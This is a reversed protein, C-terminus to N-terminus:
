SQVEIYVLDDLAWPGCDPETPHDVRLFITEGEREVGLVSVVRGCWPLRDGTLVQDARKRASM